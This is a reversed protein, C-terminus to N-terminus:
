EPAVDALRQLLETLVGIESASLRGRVWTGAVAALEAMAKEVLRKGSSTLRIPKIRQDAGSRSRAVLKGAELRAMVKTLGGSTIMLSAQLQSPTLEFPPPANRLTALVDFEAPTLGHRAWVDQAQSFALGQVWHLRLMLPMTDPAHGASWDHRPMQTPATM